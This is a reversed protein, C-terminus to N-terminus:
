SQGAHLPRDIGYLRPPDIGAPLPELRLRSALNPLVTRLAEVTGRRDGGADHLLVIAGPTTASSVTSAIARAGPKAWDRPDVQWHLSTMGLQKAVAVIAASWAGGPQRYYSIRSGPAASKIATNTRALDNFVFDKSRTSMKTDHVWSHNCLTHGEDFIRRVLQPFQVVNVGVLCFTAKIQYRGLLDLVQPTWQPDPGDDFTLAVEPTGTTVRSGYPGTAEEPLPPRNPGTIPTIRLTSLRGGDPMTASSSPWPRPSEDPPALPPVDAPSSASSGPGADGQASLEWGTVKGLLHASLLVGTVGFIALVVVRAPVNRPVTVVGFEPLISM